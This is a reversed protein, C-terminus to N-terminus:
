PIQLRTLLLGRWGPEEGVSTFLFYHLFQIALFGALKGIGINRGPHIVLLGLRHGLIATTLLFAPVLLFGLIPWRWNTPRELGNLLRRVGSDASIAGSIIWAPIASPLLLAAKLQLSAPPSSNIAVSTVCILWCFPVLAAFALLRATSSRSRADHAAAVWMAALAPGGSLNLFVPNTRDLMVPAWLAWSLPFVVALFKWVGAFSRSERGEPM